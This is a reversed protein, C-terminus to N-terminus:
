GASGARGACGAGVRRIADVLQDIGPQGARLRLGAHTHCDQSQAAPSPCASGGNSATHHCELNLNSLRLVEAAAARARARPDSRVRASYRRYGYIFGGPM